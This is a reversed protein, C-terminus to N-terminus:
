EDSETTGEAAAENRPSGSLMAAIRESTRNAVAKVPDDSLHSYRETTTVQRHGLAAGVLYIAENNAVALSPFAHRLDHLRLGPLNALARIRQWPKQVGVFPSGARDGPLVHSNGDM